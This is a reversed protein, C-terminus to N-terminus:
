IVRMKVGSGAWRKGPAGRQSAGAVGRMNSAHPTYENIGRGHNHRTLRQICPGVFRVIESIASHLLENLGSGAARIQRTIREIGNM